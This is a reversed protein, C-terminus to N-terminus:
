CIMRHLCIKELKQKNEHDLNLIVIIMKCVM